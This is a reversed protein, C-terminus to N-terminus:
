LPFGWRERRAKEDDHEMTSKEAGSKKFNGSMRDEVSASGISVDKVGDLSSLNVSKVVRSKPKPVRM